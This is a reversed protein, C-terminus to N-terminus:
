DSRENREGNPKKVKGSANKKKRTDVGNQRRKRSGRSSGTSEGGSDDNSVEDIDDSSADDSDSAEQSAEPPAVFEEDEDEEGQSAMEVRVFDFPKVRRKNPGREATVSIACILTLTCINGLPFLAMGIKYYLLEDSM